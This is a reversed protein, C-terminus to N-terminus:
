GTQVPTPYKSGPPISGAPSGTRVPGSAGAEGAGHVVSPESAVAGSGEPQKIRVYLKGKRGLRSRKVLLAATPLVDNWGVGPWWKAGIAMVMERGTLGQKGSLEATHIVDDIMAPTTPIGKPRPTGKKPISPESPKLMFDAPPQHESAWNALAKEVSALEEEEAQLAARKAEIAAIEEKLRNRKEELIERRRKLIEFEKTM